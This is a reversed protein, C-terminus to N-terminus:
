IQYIFKWFIAFVYRFMYYCHFVMGEFTNTDQANLQNYLHINLVICLILVKFVNMFAASVVAFLTPWPNIHLRYQIGRFM